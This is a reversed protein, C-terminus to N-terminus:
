RNFDYECYENGDDSKYWHCPSKCKAQIRQTTEDDDYYCQEHLNYPLIMSIIQAFINNTGLLLFLSKTTDKINMNPKIKAWKKHGDPIVKSIENGLKEASNLSNKLEKNLKNNSKIEATIRHEPANSLEQPHNVTDYDFQCSNNLQKCPSSCPSSKSCKANYKEPLIAKILTIYSATLTNLTIRLIDIKEVNDSTATNITDLVSFHKYFEYVSLNMPPFYDKISTYIIIFELIGYAAWDLHVDYNNKLSMDISDARKRLTSILKDM